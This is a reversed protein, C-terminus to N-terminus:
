PDVAEPAEAVGLQEGLLGRLRDMEEAALRQGLLSFGYLLLAGAGCLPIAWLAWPPTGITWQSAGFFFATAAVFGLTGYGFAFLTWVSPRPGFLGVLSCIEGEPCVELSLRPSWFHREHRPIMWEVHRGAVLGEIRPDKTVIPATLRGLLDDADVPLEVRFRPRVPPAHLM